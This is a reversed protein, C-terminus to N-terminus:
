EVRSLHDKLELFADKSGLDMQRMSLVSRMKHMVVPDCVGGEENVCLEVTGLLDDVTVDRRTIGIIETHENIFDNKILQYLSALLKRRSLDGTIGFIVFITPDLQSAKAM